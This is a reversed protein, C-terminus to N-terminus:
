SGILKLIVFSLDFINNNARRSVRYSSYNKKLSIVANIENEHFLMKNKIVTKFKIKTKYLYLGRFIKDFENM